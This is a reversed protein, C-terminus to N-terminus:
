GRTCGACGGPEGEPAGRCWPSSRTAAPSRRGAGPTVRGSRRPRGREAVDCVLWASEVRVMAALLAADTVPGRGPRRRALLPGVDPETGRSPWSSPRRRARCGSTSCTLRAPGDTGTALLTSRRDPDVTALLPDGAAEPLYVRTFLRNLLGRAFVTLAFFPAGPRVTTFSFHGTRDTSARGWGTFTHGDRHLSGPEQVVDGEADTQWLELM